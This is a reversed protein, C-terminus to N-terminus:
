RMRRMRNIQEPTPYSDAPLGLRLQAQKVAARTAIGIKGNPAGVEYGAQALMQQLEKAEEPTITPVGRPEDAACRRSPDRLLRGHDLLRALREM